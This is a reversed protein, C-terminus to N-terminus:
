TGIESGEEWWGEGERVRGSKKECDVVVVVGEFRDGFGERKM